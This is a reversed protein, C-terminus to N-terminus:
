GRTRGVTPCVELNRTVGIRKSLSQRWFHSCMKHVWFHVYTLELEQPVPPSERDKQSSSVDTRGPVILDAPSGDLDRVETPTSVQTDLLTKELDEM